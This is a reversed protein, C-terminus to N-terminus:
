ATPIMFIVHISYDKSDFLAVPKSNKMLIDFDASSVHYNLHRYTLVDKLNTQDVFYPDIVGSKLFMVANSLKEIQIKISLIVSTLKVKAALIDKSLLQETEKRYHALMSNRLSKFDEYLIDQNSKLNKMQNSHEKIVFSSHNMYTHLNDQRDGLNQLISKVYVEDDHDMTGTLYKLGTGLFNISRTRRGGLISVLSDM